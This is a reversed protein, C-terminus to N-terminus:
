VCKPACHTCLPASARLFRATGKAPKCEEGKTNYSYHEFRFRNNGTASCAPTVAPSSSVRVSSRGQVTSRVILDSLTKFSSLCFAFSPDLVVRTSNQGGNQTDFNNFRMSDRIQDQRTSAWHRNKRKRSAGKAHFEPLTFSPHQLLRPSYSIWM